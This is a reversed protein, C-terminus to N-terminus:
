RLRCPKVSVASHWRGMPLSAGEGRGGLEGPRWGKCLCAPEWGVAWWVWGGVTWGNALTRSPGAYALKIELGNADFARRHAQSLLGQLLAM